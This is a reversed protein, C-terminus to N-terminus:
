TPPWSPPSPLSTPKGDEDLLSKGELMNSIFGISLELAQTEDVGTIKFETERFYPCSISCFASYDDNVVPESVSFFFPHIEGKEDRVTASYNLLTKLQEM